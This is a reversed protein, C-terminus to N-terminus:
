FIIGLLILLILESGSIARIPEAAQEQAFAPLGMLFFFLLSLLGKKIVGDQLPISEMKQLSKKDIRIVFVILVVFFVFFILLSILPFIGVGAITELYTRFKM